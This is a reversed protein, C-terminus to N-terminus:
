KKLLNEQKLLITINDVLKILHDLVKETFLNKFLDNINTEFNVPMKSCKNKVFNVLKKEGPNPIENIAFLVDFYSALFAAVRHNISVFDKRNLALEIQNYYSSLIDKLLPYNKAVINEKLKEPYKLDYKTQLNKLRGNKDFLIKSNKFNDWFCTTYGVWSECRILTRELQDAIWEVSRYMIEMKLESNTIKFCDETEWFQNSLEKYSAIKDIVKEKKSIPLDKTLYVYLDIDSYQDSTQSTTSGALLIGEVEEFKSFNTVIHEILQNNDTM